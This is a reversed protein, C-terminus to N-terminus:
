RLEQLLREPPKWNPVPLVGYPTLKRPQAEREAFDGHSRPQLHARVSQCTACQRRVFPKRGKFTCHQLIIQSPAGVHLKACSPLSDTLV